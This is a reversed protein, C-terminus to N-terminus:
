GEFMTGGHKCHKREGYARITENFQIEDKMSITCWRNKLLMNTNMSMMTDILM